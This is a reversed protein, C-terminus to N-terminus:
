MPQYTLKMWGQLKCTYNIDIVNMAPNARLPEGLLNGTAPDCGNTSVLCYHLYKILRLLDTIATFLPKCKMQIPEVILPREVRQKREGVTM